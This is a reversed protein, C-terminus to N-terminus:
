KTLNNLTNAANIFNNYRLLQSNVRSQELAQNQMREMNLRHKEEEFLNMAEKLSDARGSQLYTLIYNVAQEDPNLYQEPLINSIGTKIASNVLTNLESDYAKIRSELSAIEEDLNRNRSKKVANYYIIGPFIYFFCLFITAIWHGIGLGNQREMRKANLESEIPYYQTLITHMRDFFPKADTLIKIVEQKEM